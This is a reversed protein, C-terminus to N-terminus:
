VRYSPKKKGEKRVGQVQEQAKRSRELLKDWEEDLEYGYDELAQIYMTLRAIAEYSLEMLLILTDRTEEDVNGGEKRLMDILEKMFEFCEKANKFADIKLRELTKKM